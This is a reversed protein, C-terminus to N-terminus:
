REAPQRERRWWVYALRGFLLLAAVCPWAPVGQWWRLRMQDLSGGQAYDLQYFSQRENRDQTVVRIEPDRPTLCNVMYASIGSQHHNEFVLRRSNGGRPLDASFEIQIEGTGEKMAQVDPFKESILRPRLVQGDISLSVDRLVREAYAQQESDSIVGDRNTDIGAVVFSAVAVGPTLRMSAQVRDKEISLITAQLYEDLRHAFASACIFVIAITLWKTNM